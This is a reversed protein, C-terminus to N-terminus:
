RLTRNGVKTVKVDSFHVKHIQGITCQKQCHPCQNQVTKWWREVINRLSIKHVFFSNDYIYVFQWM